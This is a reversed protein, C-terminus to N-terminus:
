MIRPIFQIPRISRTTTLAFALKKAAYEDISHDTKIATPTAERQEVPPEVHPTAAIANAAGRSKPTARSQAAMKARAAGAKEKPM